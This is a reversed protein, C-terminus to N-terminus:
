NGFRSVLTRTLAEGEATYLKIAASAAPTCTRYTRSFSQYGRNFSSVFRERRVADPREVELFREMEKRWEGDAHGCLTALFHLSGLVEALRDLGPDFQAEAAPAPAAALLAASLIWSQFARGRMPWPNRPSQPLRIAASAWGM